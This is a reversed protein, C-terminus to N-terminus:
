IVPQKVTANLEPKGGDQLLRTIDAIAAHFLPGNGAASALEATQIANEVDNQEIESFDKVAKSQKSATDAQKNEIDAQKSMFELQTAQQQLQQAQQAAQQEAQVEEPDRDEDKVMGPPLLKKLREAMEDAGPWDLNKAVLDGAVELVQPFVRALEVMSSAAEIRRTRFSPGAGARVDYKGRTLDNQIKKGDPTLIPQNIEVFRVSDDEGRLRVVRETDYYHPILDIVVRGAHEVSSALNAEFVSSGLNAEQQLAIVAKGSRQEPLDGTSAQFVGTAQQIDVASVQAQQLYGSQVMPPAERVPAGPAKPDPNYVLYPLNKTNANNWFQENGKLQDATLKYPAKPQLGIAEAAQTNWYNYMRQPDKAARVIGRYETKGEINEEVGYVPIAPFYKGRWEVHELIDFATLKYWDIADVEVERVRVPEVGQERYGQIAEQDIDETPIVVGNSLQTLEKKEKRKTFYEGIRVSDPSYWLEFSQGIAQAPIDVPVEKANPFKVEFKKKTMIESKICFRGDQKQPKIADPDFYWAFPNKEREIVIDQEFIDDNNEVTNIRFVGYGCKVQFNAATMYASAQADSTQEIQRILDELVGATEKDAGDDIPDVKISPMNSRIGGTVKRIPQGTHDLTLMPRGDKEREAKVDDPWQDLAAFRLDDVMEVRNDHEATQALEFDDMFSKIIKDTEAQSFKKKKPM